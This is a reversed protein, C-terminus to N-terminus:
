DRNREDDNWDKLFKVLKLRINNFISKFQKEDLTKETIDDIMPLQNGALLSDSSMANLSNYGGGSKQSGVYDKQVIKSNDKSMNEIDAQTMLGTLFNDVSELFRHAELEKIDYPTSICAM